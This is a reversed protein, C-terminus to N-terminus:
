QLLILKNIRDVSLARIEQDNLAKPITLIVDNIQGDKNIVLTKNENRFIRVAIKGIFFETEWGYTVKGFYTYGCKDSMCILANSSTTQVPKAGRSCRPCPVCGYSKLFWTWLWLAIKTIFSM